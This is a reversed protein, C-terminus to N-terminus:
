AIFAGVSRQFSPSVAPQPLASQTDDLSAPQSGDGIGLLERYEHNTAALEAHSGIAAIRGRALLAVRSALLISSLKSAILLVTTAQGATAPMARINDFIRRETLADLASTSDDLVLIAPRALLARALCLRQRQGGSLTVGRDGIKTLIGQPLRDIIDEAAAMRLAWRLDDDSAHPAARRLNAEVTDAFLFSEQPVVHVQRRLSALDLDSIKQWDAERGLFIDGQVPAVLRPLLNALTSKGAGTAGVLALIEGPRLSLSLNDLVVNGGGPPKVLVDRLRVGISGDILKERGDQIVPEADLLEWIRAASARADAFVKIVRGIGEIRFVLINVMLLAAVLEGLNIQGRTLLYAGFGLVWVQGFAVIMQPLPIRSSSYALATISHHIFLQVHQRFRAVRLTELNFSKIVRVGHIGENLDQNVEDYIDAVVRDLAVLRDAQRILIGLGLLCLLLPVTGLWLNYWFLYAMASAVALATDFLQRWFSILADRVKDSDRTTRSVMEGAGHKWHYALDLRQAQDLINLRLTSLLEQQIVLALIGTGYQLVARLTAVGVLIWLWTWALQADMSGDPLLKVAVGRQVDNVANGLLWQQWVLLLNIVLFLGATLGFRWPTLKYLALCRLLPYNKLRSM